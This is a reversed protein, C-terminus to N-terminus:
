KRRLLWLVFTRASQLLDAVDGNTLCALPHYALQGREDEPLVLL